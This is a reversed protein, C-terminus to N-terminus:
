LPIPTFTYKFSFSFFKNASNIKKGCFQDVSYYKCFDSNENEPDTNEIILNSIQKIIKNETRSINFDVNDISSHVNLGKLVTLKLSDNSESGFPLNSRICSICFFSETNEPDELLKNYRAPTISNCKIHVWKDCIDCCISRDTKRVCKNCISCPFQVVMRFTGTAICFPM